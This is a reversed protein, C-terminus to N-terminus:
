EGEVARLQEQLAEIQSRLVDSESPRADQAHVADLMVGLEALRDRGAHQYRMAAATTRHGMAAMTERMTSGHAALTTGYFHRLKHFSLDPRGVTEAALYYGTAKRAKVRKGKSGMHAKCSRTGILQGPTILGGDRGPFLLGDKGPQAHRRLHDRIEPLLFPPIPVDRVSGETKTTEYRRLRDVTVVGRRVHLVAPAGKPLTFDRRQLGSIEGFRLGCWAALMVALRHAPKMAGALADIEASTFLELGTADHGASGAGRIRLPNDTLIGDDVASTLISRAFAYVRARGVDRGPLLDAYWREWDTRTIETLRRADMGQLHVRLYSRYLQRTADKIPRGHVQRTDLWRRAYDGFTVSEREVQARREAPPTWEGLDILRKEAALWLEALKVTGFQRGANHVTDARRYYARYNGARTLTVTGFTSTRRVKRRGATM